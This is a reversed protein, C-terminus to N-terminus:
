TANAAATPVYHPPNGSLPYADTIGYGSLTTPKSTISGFTHSHGSASYNTSLHTMLDTQNTVLGSIQGWVATADTLEVYASGSWRYTKGTNIAVYIKGSEGSGPLSAFDAAEIIDDVFSPLQNSPILGGVLDAKAALASVLGTVKSQAITTIWTPNSYSGALSVYTADAASTTVFNSPNGSLPYADTIGYGSLTTPKSTLSGFTHTHGAASYNASLHSILDTQNTVSGSIQGWVATADTLEVYVSGSWRYTKGTDITVYIKGTSGTGPLAAFNAAEIVDDVFSPLQNSPIVGGVLDAKAALSATLGTVKAPDISTIWTPNAYSGALSVYTSAAVSGTVFNSPNGSLPYADTIGYGSLTTPKSTLSGFTHTHGAASYNASLHSMLDTQNSLTGSIQGWVATADTLEVYASGSWRYTKGTNLTVYIKGTEGTVPLAGFSAAEIVDDVFSPLQHSPVVGGVLDAKGALSAALGTIKSSDLATIWAPNSYVGSLSAFTADIQERSYLSQSSRLEEPTLAKSFGNGDSALVRVDTETTRITDQTSIGPM